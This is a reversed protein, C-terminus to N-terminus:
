ERALEDETLVIADKAAKDPYVAIRAAKDGKLRIGFDAFGADSNRRTRRGSRVGAPASGHM